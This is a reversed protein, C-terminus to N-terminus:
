WLRIQMDKWSEQKAEHIVDEKSLEGILLPSKPNHRKFNDM